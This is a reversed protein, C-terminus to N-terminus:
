AYIKVTTTSSRIEGLLVLRSVSPPFPQADGVREVQPLLGGDDRRRNQADVERVRQGRPTIADRLDGEGQGAGANAVIRPTPGYIVVLALATDSAGWQM